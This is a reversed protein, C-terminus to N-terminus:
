FHVSNWDKWPVACSLPQSMWSLEATGHIARFVTNKKGGAILRL